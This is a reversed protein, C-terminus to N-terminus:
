RQMAADAQQVLREALPVDSPRDVNIAIEPYPSPVARVAAQVLESARREADAITLRRLAYRVLVDYGFISALRLPRKRAAGLRDLFHALAPNARPRLAVLGGGCFEGERLRAWTHPVGSFQGEHRQREVCSYAIDCGSEEAARCFEEIAVGTLIPLDAVAILALQAPELGALGAALSQTIREGSPRWEDALLVDPHTAVSPPAVVIIRGVRPVGRLAEIVRRLLTRGAIHVFAKNAASPDLAAVDDRPGGALVLATM